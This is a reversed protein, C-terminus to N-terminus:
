RDRDGGNTGGRCISRDGFRETIRDMAEDIREYATESLLTRADVGSLGAALPPRITDVATGAAGERVRDAIIREGLFALAAGLAVVVVLSFAAFQLLLGGKSIRTM